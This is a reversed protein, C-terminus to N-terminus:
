SSVSDITRDTEAACRFHSHRQFASGSVHNDGSQLMNEASQRAGRTSAPVGMRIWRHASNGSECMWQDISRYVDKMLISNLTASKHGPKPSCHTWNQLSFQHSLFASPRPDGDHKKPRDAKAAIAPRRSIIRFFDMIDLPIKRVAQRCHTPNRCAKESRSQPRFRRDDRNEETIGHYTVLLDELFILAGLGDCCSHHFEFLLDANSAWRLAM